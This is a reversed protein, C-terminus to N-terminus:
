RVYARSAPIRAGIATEIRLRSGSRADHGRGGRPRRRHDHVAVNFLCTQPCPHGGARRRFKTRHALEAVLVRFAMSALSTGLLGLVSGTDRIRHKFM